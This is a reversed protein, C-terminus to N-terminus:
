LRSCIFHETTTEITIIMLNICTHKCKCIWLWKLLQKTKWFSKTWILYIAFISAKWWCYVYLRSIWKIERDKLNFFYVHILSSASCGMLLCKIGLGQSSAPFFTQLFRGEGSSFQSCPFKVFLVVPLLPPKSCDGHFKCNPHGCGEVILHPLSLHRQCLSMITKCDHALLSPGRWPSCSVPCKRITPFVTSKPLRQFGHTNSCVQPLVTGPIKSVILLYVGAWPTLGQVPGWFHTFLSGKWRKELKETIMTM